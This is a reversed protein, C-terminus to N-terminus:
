LAGGEELMRALADDVSTVDPEDEMYPTLRDLGEDYRDLKAQAANVNAVRQQRGARLENLTAKHTSVFYTGDPTVVGIASPLGLGPITLQGNDDEDETFARMIDAALKRAYDLVMKETADAFVDGHRNYACRVVHEASVKAETELLDMACERLVSRVNM